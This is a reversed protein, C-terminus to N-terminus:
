RVASLIGCKREATLLILIWSSLTNLYYALFATVKCGFSTKLRVEFLLPLWHTLLSVNLAGIDVVSLATLIFGTSTYRFHRHQLTIISVPNGLTGIIILFPSVYVFLAVSLREQWFNEEVSLVTANGLTGVATSDTANSQYDFEWSDNRLRRSIDTSKNERTIDSEYGYFHTTNNQFSDVAIHTQATAM